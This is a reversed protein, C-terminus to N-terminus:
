VPEGGAGKTDGSPEHQRRHWDELGRTRDGGWPGPGGWRAGRGFAAGMLAFFGFFLLPFLILGVPFFGFRRDHDVYHAIDAGSGSQDLNQALGESVGANYAGIGILVTVAVAVVLVWVPINRRM